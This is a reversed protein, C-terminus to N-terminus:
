FLETNLINEVAKTFAGSKACQYARSIKGDTQFCPYMKRSTPLKM